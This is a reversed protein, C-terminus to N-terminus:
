SRRQRLGDNQLSFEVATRKANYLQKQETELNSKRRADERLVDEMRINREELLRCWQRWGCYQDHRRSQWWSDSFHDEFAMGDESDSSSSDCNGLPDKSNYDGRGVTNNYKEFVKQRRGSTFLSHSLYCECSNKVIDSPSQGNHDLSNYDAGADLLLAMLDSKSKSAYNFGWDRRMMVLHLAQKGDPATKAVDAGLDILYVMQFFTKITPHTSAARMLMTYGSVPDQYDINICRTSLIDKWKRLRHRGSETFSLDPKGMSCIQQLTRWFTPVTCTISTGAPLILCLLKGMVAKPM